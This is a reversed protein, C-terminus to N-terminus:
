LSSLAGTDLCHLNALNRHCVPLYVTDRSPAPLLRNQVLLPARICSTPPPLLLSVQDLAKLPRQDDFDQGEDVKVEDLIDCETNTSVIKVGAAFHKEYGDDDLETEGGEAAAHEEHAGGARAQGRFGEEGKSNAMCMLQALHNTQFKRRIGMAGTVEYKLGTSNQAAVLMEDAQKDNFYATHALATELHLRAYYDGAAEELMGAKECQKIREEAEELYQFLLAHLTFSRGHLLRQQTGVARAAWRCDM